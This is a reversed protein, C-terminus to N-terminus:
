YGPNQTINVPNIQVEKRPVPYLLHHPKINHGKASLVEQAKNFRKLDFWRHNEFALEVRREQLLKTKFGEYDLTRSWLPISGARSRIKDVADYAEVNPGKNTENIAEALMLLVDAYRLVPINDESNNPSTPVGRYKYIIFVSAAEQKSFYPIISYTRRPDNTEYANWMDLTPLNIGQGTSGLYSAGFIDKGATGDNTLFFNPYPNGEGPVSSTYQIEFITEFTNDTDFAAAYTNMLRYQYPALTLERLLPLALAPNKNTLYVKALLATAAGKTARGVDSTSPPLIPLNNIADKLDNIITQYVEAEPARKLAFAEEASKIGALSIPVPGFFRVLDFYFLARLFKAEGIYQNKLSPNPFSIQEIKDLLLNSRSIGRYLGTWRSQFYSNNDTMQFFELERLDGRGADAIRTPQVMTNDTILETLFAMDQPYSGGQLADYIGIVALNADAPSNFSNSVNAQDLPNLELVDDSCGSILILLAISLFLKFRKKM